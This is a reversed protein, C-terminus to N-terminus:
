KGVYPAVTTFPYPAIKPCARSVAGLLTSKGANPMSSWSARHEPGLGILGVDAVTKLELEIRRDQGPLGLFAEHVRAMNNGMGGKGGLAVTVSQGPQDLDALLAGRRKQRSDEPDVLLERVFVGRPVSIVCQRGSEGNLNGRRGTMGNPAQVHGNVHALSWLDPTAKVVVDGGRGGSGGCPWGPGIRMKHKTHKKYALGGSGGHGAIVRVERRDVLHRSYQLGEGKDVLSGFSRGLSGIAKGVEAREKEVAGGSGPSLAPQGVLALALPGRIERSLDFFNFPQLSFSVGFNSVLPIDEQRVIHEKNLGIWAVLDEDLISENNSLFIDLDQVYEGTLPQLGDFNVYPSSPRYENDQYKTVALHYKTWPMARVFPHSPSHVQSTSFSMLDIRYGRPNPKGSPTSSANRNVIAWAKPVKTDAVFTSSQLGEHEVFRQQLIKTPFTQEQPDARWNVGLGSSEHERVETVHLANKSGSVEIDAKWAVSHTHVIGAVGERVLSSFREEGQSPYRTEPYGAFRTEVNIEGDERFKVDMIYDYNGVTAISRVVVTKRIYGRTYNGDMHRWIEHDEAWDFVCIPYFERVDSVNPAVSLDPGMWNAVPLYTARDPCDVGPELSVSWQSMTYASDSYMFQDRASGGYIAQSDMLALEYLIREGRFRVDTVAVGTSPRQTVSFSWPGWAVGGKRSEPRPAPAPRPSEHQPTDWTGFDMKPKCVSLHGENYAKMLAAESPFPGQGCFTIHNVKWESVNWSTVNAEMDLPLPYIWQSDPRSPLPPTVTFKMRLRRTRGRPSLADNRPTLTITGKKQDWDPLMPFINGFAELLLPAMQHASQNFIVNRLQNIELEIGPRKSYPIVGAPVLEEITADAAPGDAGLPGVKYEVVAEKTNVTVRAFRQPAPGHGDLYALTEKKKPRLLEVASPGALWTEVEPASRCPQAGTKAMVFRAVAQVESASLEGLVEAARSPFFHVANEKIQAYSKGHVHVERVPTQLKVTLGAGLAASAMMLPLLLVELPEGEPFEVLPPREDDPEMRRAAMAIPGAALACVKFLVNEPVPWNQRQAVLLAAKVSERVSEPFLRHTEPKWEAALAELLAFDEGCLERCSSSADGRRRPLEKAGACVLLTVLEPQKQMIAMHLATEEIPVCIVSPVFGDERPDDTPSRRGSDVHETRKRIADVSAGRALLLACVALDKRECALHLATEASNRNFGRENFFQELSWADARAGHDLLARVAEFNGARVAEHLIPKESRGDTRMSHVDQIAKTNPDAGATLFLELFASNQTVYPMALDFATGTHGCGRWDYEESAENVDARAEILTRIVQTWNNLQDQYSTSDVEDSKYPRKRLAVHLPGKKSRAGWVGEPDDIFSAEAGSQLLERVRELDVRSAAELLSKNLEEM